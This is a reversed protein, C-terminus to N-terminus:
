GKRNYILPLPPLLFSLDSSHGIGTDLTWQKFGSIIELAAVVAAVIVTMSYKTNLTRHGRACKACFITLGLSSLSPLNNLHSISSITSQTRMGGCTSADGGGNGGGSDWRLPPSRLLYKLLQDTLAQIDARGCTM